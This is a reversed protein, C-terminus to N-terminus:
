DDDDLRRDLSLATWSLVAILLVWFSIRYSLLMSSDCAFVTM